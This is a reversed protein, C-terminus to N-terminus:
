SVVIIYGVGLYALVLKHQGRLSLLVFVAHGRKVDGFAKEVEAHIRWRHVEGQNYM